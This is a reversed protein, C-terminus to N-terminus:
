RDAQALLRALAVQAPTAGLSEAVDREDREEPTGHSQSKGMLGLGLASDTLGQTALTRTPLM